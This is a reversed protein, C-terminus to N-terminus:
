IEDARKDYLRGAFRIFRYVDSFNSVLGLSLRVAGTSKDDICRRFDDLSLRQPTRTFCASLEQASIGLAAEGGTYDLYAHGLRDIREYDEARLRDLLDTAGYAPYDRRFKGESDLLANM